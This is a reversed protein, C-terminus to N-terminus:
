HTLDVVVILQRRSVCPDDNCQTSEHDKLAGANVEGREVDEHAGDTHSETETQLVDRVIEETAENEQEFAWDLDSAGRECDVTRVKADSRARRRRRGKM